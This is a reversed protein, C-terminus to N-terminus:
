ESHILDVNIPVSTGTSQNVVVLEANPVTASQFGVSEDANFAAWMSTGRQNFALQIKPVAALVGSGITPVTTPLAAAAIAGTGILGAALPQPVIASGATFLTTTNYLRILIANDAPTAYSGCIMKQVAGRLGAIGVMNMTYSNTSASGNSNQQTSTSYYYPM